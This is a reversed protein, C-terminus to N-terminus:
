AAAQVIYYTGGIELIKCLKQACVSAWLPLTRVGQLLSVTILKSYPRRGMGDCSLRMTPWCKEGAEILIRDDFFCDLERSKMDALLALEIKAERKVDSSSSLDDCHEVEVVKYNLVAQLPEPALM